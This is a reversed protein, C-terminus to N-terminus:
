KELGKLFNWLQDLVKELDKNISKAKRKNRIIKTKSNTICHGGYQYTEACQQLTYAQKLLDKFIWFDINNKLISKNFVENINHWLLEHTFVSAHTHLGIASIYGFGWYWGCEWSHKKLYIQEGLICLSDKEPNYSQTSEIQQKVEGLYISDTM